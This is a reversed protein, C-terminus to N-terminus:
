KENSIYTKVFCRFCISQKNDALWQNKYFEWNELILDNLETDFKRIISKAIFTKCKSCDIIYDIKNSIESDTFGFKKMNESLEVKRNERAITKGAFYFSNSLFDYDDYINRYNKIGSLFCFLNERTIQLDSYFAFQSLFDLSSIRHYAFNRCIYRFIPDSLYYNELKSIIKQDIM